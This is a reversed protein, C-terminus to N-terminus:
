YNNLDQPHEDSDLVKLHKWYYRSGKVGHPLPGVWDSRVQDTSCWPGFGLGSILCLSTIQGRRNM